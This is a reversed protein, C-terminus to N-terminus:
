ATGAQGGAVAAPDSVDVDRTEAATLEQWACARWSEPQVAKYCQRSRGEGPSMWILIATASSMVNTSCGPLASRGWTAAWRGVGLRCRGEPQDLDYTRAESRASWRSWRRRGPAGRWCPRSLRLWLLYSGLRDAHNGAARQAVGPAAVTDDLPWGSM